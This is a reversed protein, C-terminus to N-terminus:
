YIFQANQKPILLKQKNRSTYILIM